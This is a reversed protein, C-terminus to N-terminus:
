MELQMGIHMVKTACEAIKPDHTVIICAKDQLFRVLQQLVAEKTSADVSTLPEDLLILDADQLFIESLALRARQGGSISAGHDSLNTDLGDPLSRYFSELGAKKLASVM